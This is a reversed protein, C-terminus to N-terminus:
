GAAAGQVEEPTELTWPCPNSMSAIVLHFARTGPQCRASEAPRIGYLGLIEGRADSVVIVGKRAGRPVKCDILVDKVKRVGRGGLPAIRDGPRILRLRLPLSVKEPVCL